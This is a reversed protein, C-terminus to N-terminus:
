SKYEGVALLGVLCQISPVLVIYHGLSQLTSFVVQIEGDHTLAVYQKESYGLNLYISRQESVLAINLCNIPTDGM